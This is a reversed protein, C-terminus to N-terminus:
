FYLGRFRAGDVRNIELAPFPVKLVNIARFLKAVWKKKTPIQSFDVDLSFVYQRYRELHPFPLGRYTTPNEFEKIIGNGSYGFAFNLWPPVKEFGTIGKISFSLWYTHANYDLFFNEVPTEGLASHYDPYISPAYSFKMLMLQRDFLAEQAMFVASGATNALMDGWSFGWDEYLGDFIEIPTQFLLGVPGGYILAKKKNLGAWRLANYAAASEKYASFAHGAKDIQLYGKGDKYFHFPARESDKYWILSLFSLGAAYSAVETVGVSVLRKKILTDPYFQDFNTQAKAFTIQFLLITLVIPKFTKM